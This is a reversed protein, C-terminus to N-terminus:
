STFLLVHTADPSVIPAFGMREYLRAADASEARLRVCSFHKQAQAVLATVLARGIGKNRWAARVYVRRIRGMDARGAFPDANLGGVAILEGCDLAGCFTEGPGDFRNEGSAWDEALTDIFDYGEARAEAQLEDLGPYPLEIRQISIM